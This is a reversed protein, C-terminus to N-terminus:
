KSAEAALLTEARALLPLTENPLRDDLVETLLRDLVRGFAPGPRHGARILDRGTLALEGTALPLGSALERRVVRLAEAADPVPSVAEVRARVALIRLAPPVLDRGLAVMWRRRVRTDRALGGIGGPLGAVRAVAGAMAGVRDIRRNSSRLRALMAVAGETSGAAALLAAWRLEGDRAPLEDVTRLAVSWAAQAEPTDLEPLLFGLAGSAAYLSLAASPREGQALVKDLEDRVREPSLIGLEPVAQCAAEWTAAEIELGFRGAFRLARLVRLYDEAFRESPAGVTRLVGAELDRAGQFPDHLAGRVPHWAVANITFDRRSLDEDLTEAFAVVAHRGTTEVDRRFTTVEYMTGDRALVGVTGHDIGVPVTRRFVRRVQNPHARTTLDWDDSPHGALADRVAGGVAWTEFGAGELTECIWRVAGPAQIEVSM